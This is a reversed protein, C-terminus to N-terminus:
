LSHCIRRVMCHELLHPLALLFGPSREPFEVLGEDNQTSIIELQRWLFDIQEYLINHQSAEIFVDKVIIVLAFPTEPTIQSSYDLANRQAYDCLTRGGM